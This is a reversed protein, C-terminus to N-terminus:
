FHSWIHKIETLYFTRSTKTTTQFHLLYCSLLRVDRSCFKCITHNNIALHNLDCHRCEADGTASITNGDCQICGSQDSNPIAGAQCPICMSPNNPDKITGGPCQVCVSQDHHPIEGDPCLGCSPVGNELM